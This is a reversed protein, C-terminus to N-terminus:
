LKNENKSEKERLYRSWFEMSTMEAIANQYARQATAYEKKLKLWLRFWEGPMEFLQKMEKHSYFGLKTDPDYIWVDKKRYYCHPSEGAMIPEPNGRRAPLLWGNLSLLKKRDINNSNHKGTLIDTLLVDEKEPITGPFIETYRYGTSMLERHLEEADTQM